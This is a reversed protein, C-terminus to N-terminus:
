KEASLLLKHWSDEKYPNLPFSYKLEHAVPHLTAYEKIKHLEFQSQEKGVVNGSWDTCAWCNIISNRSISCNCLKRKEKTYPHILETYSRSSFMLPHTFIHHNAPQAQGQELGTLFALSINGSLFGRTIM